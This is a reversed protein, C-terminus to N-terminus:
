AVVQLTSSPAQSREASQTMVIPQLNPTTPDGDVDVATLVVFGVALGLACVMRGM